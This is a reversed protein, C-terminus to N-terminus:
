RGQLGRVRPSSGPRRSEDGARIIYVGCARPHDRSTGTPSPVTCTFGARAPIIGAWPRRFCWRRRLGRVRPSSGALVVVWSWWAGYVGCARPHDQSVFLQFGPGATFGARAPIIGRDTVEVRWALPLGRVRPSSGNLHSCSYNNLLYVGCARPHDTMSSRASLISTTFGARAPIIRAGHGPVGAQQPLGRVRPSSGSGQRPWAGRGWYVGCARPHDPPRRGGPRPRHTFGARAPIIRGDVICHTASAPLGRM